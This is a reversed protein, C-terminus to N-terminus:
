EGHFEDDSVIIKRTITIAGEQATFAFVIGSALRTAWDFDDILYSFAEAAEEGDGYFFMYTVGGEFIPPILSKSWITSRM